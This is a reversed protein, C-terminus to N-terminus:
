RAQQQAREQMAKQLKVMDEPSPQLSIKVWYGAQPPAPFHGNQVESKLCASMKSRYSSYIQEISGDKGLRLALDFPILFSDGSQKLCGSVVNSYQAAFTKGIEADFKKGEPTKANDDASKLAEEITKAIVGATAWDRATEFYKRDKWTKQDWFDGIRTFLENAYLPDGGIAAMYAVKNLNTLSVGYSEELAKYGRKIREWSMGHLNQDEGCNCNLEYAIQFYVMDGKRGGLRDAAKQAFAATEGEEGGWKEALSTARMRYYYQYDPEFAVSKEFAAAQLDKSASMDQLLAQLALYWEPCKVPLAFAEKLVKGSLELRQNLLQWGDETVTDSTGSGRAKWGYHQYAEALAVRATISNPRQVVWRQLRELHLKWEAEGANNGRRPKCLGMYAIHLAWFGGPFREKSSRNQDAIMDLTEFKEQELLQRNEEEYGDLFELSGTGPIGPPLHMAEALLDPPASASAPTKMVEPVATHASAPTASTPAVTQSGASAAPPKAGGKQKDSRVRRAIDGLSTPEQCDLISSLFLVCFSFLLLKKNVM